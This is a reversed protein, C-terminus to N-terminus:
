YEPLAEWLKAIEYEAYLTVYSKKKLDSQISCQNFLTELQAFFRPLRNPHTGDFTPAAREGFVPMFPTSM